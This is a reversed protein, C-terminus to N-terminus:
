LNEGNPFKFSAIPVLKTLNTKKLYDLHLQLHALTTGTNLIEQLFAHSQSPVDRELQIYSVSVIKWRNDSAREVFESVGNRGEFSHQHIM